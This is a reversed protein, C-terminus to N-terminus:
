SEEADVSRRIGEEDLFCDALRSIKGSCITITDFHVHSPTRSPKRCNPTQLRPM